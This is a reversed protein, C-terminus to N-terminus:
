PRLRFPNNNPSLLYLPAADAVAAPLTFTRSERFFAGCSELGTKRLWVDTARSRVRHEITFEDGGSCGRYSVTVTLSAGQISPVPDLLLAYTEGFSPEAPNSCGLALALWPGLIRRRTRLWTMATSFIPM